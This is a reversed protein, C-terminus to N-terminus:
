ESTEGMQLVARFHVQASMMREFAVAAQELPFVEVMPTVGSLLSFRLTDEGNGGVWGRISRSGRMLLMPSVRLPENVFTIIVLEGGRGLGGVLPSIDQSSPAMCLIVRAGGLESLAQAADQTKTDIYVQAGLERALQEKETGRSLVATRFGLKVAYQVALHGLGGLGHLAVLDGGRAVSNKLAGFTTSGACLLPAAQVASLEDPIATLAEMRALMYEAYGGDSSLGTTLGRECAGFEGRRCARCHFCHGGQWGVGVRQGVQWDASPSGLREIVGVVEHGPVRPYRLGPFSGQKVIADGHCVGCAEVKLLVEGTDPQPIEIHVLEFEAGPAPVRVAKMLSM